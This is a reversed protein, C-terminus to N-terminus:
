IHILSLGQLGIVDVPTAPGAEFIKHGHENFMARVHGWEKGAIIIDGQHLTGNQVLLTAIPGRGKDLEAEIITGKALRNPNAKLELVDAELLVMELLSDLGMQTKASVPVCITDGGWEESVLGHETLQQKVREPNATERDMKNIAVIIPVNAAKAHNIAEVTQPMIGDDAAVVLIVIDTVQAGRARM